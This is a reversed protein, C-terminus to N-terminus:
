KAVKVVNAIEHVAQPSGGLALGFGIFMIPGWRRWFKGVGEVADAIIKMSDRIDELHLLGRAITEEDPQPLHIIRPDRHPSRTM